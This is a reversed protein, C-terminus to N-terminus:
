HHVLTTQGLTRLALPMERRRGLAFTVLALRRQSDALVAQLYHVIVRDEKNVTLSTEGGEVTAPDDLPLTLTHIIANM